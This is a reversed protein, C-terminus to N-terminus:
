PSHCHQEIFHMYTMDFTEGLFVIKVNKDQLKEFISGPGFCNKGVNIFHAADPGLAAVSFIADSSRLVSPQTRFYETLVGVTSPTKEPDFIEGKCYSYSFAPMIITGKEGVAGKLAELFGGLLEERRIKYALKGFSELDSHVFLNDGSIVGVKKLAILVDPKGYEKDGYKFLVIKKFNTKM